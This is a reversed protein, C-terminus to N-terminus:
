ENNKKNFVLALLFIFLEGTIFWLRSIVSITTATEVPIGMLIMFTAMIGERVGIGGPVIVALLGLTVSLPFVFGVNISTEPYISLSFLWFAIIWAAWYFFIYILINLSEKFSIHPIDLEKKFVKKVAKIIFIRVKDSFNFFTIGIFIVSVGLLFLDAKRYIFLPIISILLGLWVYLLQEKLSAYTSTKASYKEGAVKVGRGLIVWIKGPIYKAFVSLGHSNLATKKSVIIKHKKLVFWWSVTSLYFGTWLFFLSLILYLYNFKLAKVNLYNSKYLFFLLFILSLYLLINFFLKRKM